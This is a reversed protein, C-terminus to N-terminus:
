VIFCGVLSYEHWCLYQRRLDRFSCCHDWFGLTVRNRKREMIYIFGFDLCSLPLLLCRRIPLTWRVHVALVQDAHVRARSYWSRLAPPISPGSPRQYRPRFSFLSTFMLYSPLRLLPTCVELSLLRFHLSYLTASCSSPTNICTHRTLASLLVDTLVFLSVLFSM